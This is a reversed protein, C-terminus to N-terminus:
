LFLLHIISCFCYEFRYQGINELVSSFCGLYINGFQGEFNKCCHIAENVTYSFAQKGGSMVVGPKLKLLSHWDSLYFM